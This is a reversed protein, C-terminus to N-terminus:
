KSIEGFLTDSNALTCRYFGGWSVILIVLDIMYLRIWIRIPHLRYVVCEKKVTIEGKVMFENCRM